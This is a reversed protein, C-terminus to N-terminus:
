IRKSTDKGNKSIFSYWVPAGYLLISRVNSTYFIKLEETNLGQAELQRTLFFSSNTKSVLYDVYNNFNLKNDIFIGLFKAETAPTLTVGNVLINIM